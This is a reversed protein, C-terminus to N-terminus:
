TLTILSAFGVIHSTALQEVHPFLLQQHQCEYPLLSKFLTVAEDTNQYVPSTRRWSAVHVVSPISMRTITALMALGFLLKLNM